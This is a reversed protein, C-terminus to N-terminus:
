GNRRNFRELDRRVQEGAIAVAQGMRRGALRMQAELTVPHAQDTGDWRPIRRARRAARQDAWTGVGIIAIGVVLLVVLDSWNTYVVALM